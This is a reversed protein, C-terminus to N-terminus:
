SEKQYCNHYLEIATAINGNQIMNFFGREIDVVRFAMDQFYTNKISRCEARWSNYCTENHRTVRIQNENEGFVIRDLARAGGAIRMKLIQLDLVCYEMPNLFMLIKSIFSIGSYQPLKISKIQNLTPIANNQLLGKFLNIKEETCGDMFEAVRVDRYGINYYGWFLVNALGYKVEINNDHKLLGGVYQELRGVDAFIDNENTEFGRGVLPFNYTQVANQFQMVQRRDWTM